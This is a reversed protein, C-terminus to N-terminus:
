TYNYIYVLASSEGEGGWGWGGARGREVGGGTAGLGWLTVAGAATTGGGYVGVGAALVWEGM